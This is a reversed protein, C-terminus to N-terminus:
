KTPAAKELIALVTQILTLIVVSFAAITGTGRWLDNFYVYKLTAMTRNWSNKYHGNLETGIEGYLLTSHVVGVALKNIMKAVAESSGLRNVIIGEKVLLDVDESTDVLSDLLKIYSCFYAKKPYHYQEFAMLNRFRIETEYEVDIALLKLVGKKFEVELLSYKTSGLVDDMVKNIMGSGELDFDGIKNCNYSVGNFIVRFDDKVTTCKFRVGAERLKTASYINYNGIPIDNDLTPCDRLVQYRILDTFHKIKKKEFSPDKKIGFYSCALDLFCYENSALKALDLSSYEDFSLFVSKYLDELVFFPLQNELLLLDTLLKVRVLASQNLDHYDDEEEVRNYDGDPFEQKRAWDRLFLTIIFVADHFIIEILQSAELMYISQVDYCRDIRKVNLEISGKFDKLTKESTKRVFKDYYRKKQSEMPALNRDGHHTPGISILHPTYAEENGARFRRPVKYICCEPGPELDEEPIDIASDEPQDDNENVPAIEQDTNAAMYAVEKTPKVRELIALVTQILTLVVVIFAAITATGRWLNNFYVHKLAAWRHNWSNDNYQNLDHGIKGYLMSSHVIGVALNNIMDAVAAGSGLRNVIIRKRVLLDVDECTDILSDLLQIYSCFHAKHPYHCQEFAMLNRFRTETEFAVDIVPLKLVGKEFDVDLLSNITNNIASKGIKFIGSKVGLFKVGAEHLMSANYINHVRSRDISRLSNSVVQYRILHTFHKIGKNRLSRDIHIGFYWCALELFSIDSNPFALNYLEELVFFPLQNELLMLDTPLEVRLLAKRRLFYDDSNKESERLFLEIIFVADDLIIKKFKPAELLLIFQIEYCRCIGEAHNEIYSAFEKLKKESTRESFKKYYRLKQREMTALNENGHHLPGISILQPTYAKQNAERFRSPVKYICCEPALELVEVPIEIVLDQPQHNNGILPATEQDVNAM